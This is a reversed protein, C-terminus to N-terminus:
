RDGVQSKNTNKRSREQAATRLSEDLMRQAMAGILLGVVLTVLMALLARSVTTGFSNRAQLGGVLLCVAFAVLSM